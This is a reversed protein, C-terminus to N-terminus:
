NRRDVHKLKRVEKLIKKEVAYIFHHEKYNTPRIGQARLLTVWCHLMEHLLTSGYDSVTKNEKLSITIRAKENGLIIFNGMAGNKCKKVNKIELIM